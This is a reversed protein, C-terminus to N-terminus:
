NVKKRVACTSPFFSEVHTTGSAAVARGYAKWRVALERPELARLGGLSDFEAGTRITVDDAIQKSFRHDANLGISVLTNPEALIHIYTGAPSFFALRIRLTQPTDDNKASASGVELVPRNLASVIEGSLANWLCARSDDTFTLVFRGKPDITGGCVASPHEFPLSAPAGDTCRWIRATGGDDGTLFRANATL